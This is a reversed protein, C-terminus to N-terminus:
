LVEIDEQKRLKVEKTKALQGISYCSREFLILARIKVESKNGIFSLYFPAVTMGLKM